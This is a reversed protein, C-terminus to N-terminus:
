LWCKSHSLVTSQIPKCSAHLPVFFHFYKFVCGHVKDINIPVPSIGQCHIYFSLFWWHKKFSSVSVINKGQLVLVIQNLCVQVHGWLKRACTFSLNTICDQVSFTGGPLLKQTEKNRLHILNTPKVLCLVSATTYASSKSPHRSKKPFILLADRSAPLAPPPSRGINYPFNITIKWFFEADFTYLVKRVHWRWLGCIIGEACVWM